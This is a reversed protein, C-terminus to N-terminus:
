ATVELPLGIPPAIEEQIRASAIRSRIAMVGIVLLLMGAFNTM